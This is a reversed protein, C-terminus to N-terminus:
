TRDDETQKEQNTHAGGQGEKVPSADSDSAGGRPFPMELNPVCTDVGGEEPM